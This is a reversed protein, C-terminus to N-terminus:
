LQGYRRSGPLSRPIHQRLERILRSSTNRVTRVARSKRTTRCTVGQTTATTARRPRRTPDSPRNTATQAQDPRPLSAPELPQTESDDSIAQMVRIFEVPDGGLDPHHRKAAERRRNRVSQGAEAGRELDDSARDPSPHSM